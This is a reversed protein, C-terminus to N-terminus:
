RVPRRWMTAGQPPQAMQLPLDSAPFNQSPPLPNRTEIPFEAIIVIGDAPLSKITDGPYGSPYVQGVGPTADSTAFPVNAAWAQPAGPLDALSPDTTVVNWGDAAQFDLAPGTPTSSATPNAPITPAARHGHLVGLAGLPVLVGAVAVVAAVAAAAAHRRRLTRARRQVPPLEPSPISVRQLATRGRELLDSDDERM